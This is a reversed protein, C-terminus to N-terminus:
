LLVGTGPGGKLYIKTAQMAAIKNFPSKQVLTKQSSQFLKM